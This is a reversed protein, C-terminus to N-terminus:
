IVRRMMQDPASALFGPNSISAPMVLFSRDRSLTVGTGKGEGSGDAAHCKVCHETYLARGNDVDGEIRESNFEVSRTGSHERLYRVVADVQADSMRMFSPM